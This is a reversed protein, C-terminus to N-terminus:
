ARERFTACATEECDAAGCGKIDVHDAACKLNNNYVCKVADCDIYITRSPYELSNSFSDARRQVFSECCTDETNCAYKGGIYIDGKCCCTERNHICNEVKCQLEAMDEEMRGDFRYLEYSSVDKTYVPFYLM